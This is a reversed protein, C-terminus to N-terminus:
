SKGLKFLYLPRVQSPKSATSQAEDKGDFRKSMNRRHWTYSGSPGSASRNSALDTGSPASSGSGSLYMAAKGKGQRVFVRKVIVSPARPIVISDDKYETTYSSISVVTLTVQTACLLAGENSSRDFIVLDFDNAKGLNHAIVIEKKLDFVSIGTGDFTVRSEDRQSKFKYFVSSAMSVLKHHM